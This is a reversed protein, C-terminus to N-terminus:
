FLPFNAGMRSIVGLFSMLGIEGQTAKVNQSRGKHHMCQLQHAESARKRKDQSNKTSRLSSSRIADESWRIMLETISVYWSHKM